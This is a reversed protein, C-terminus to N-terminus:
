PLLSEDGVLYLRRLRMVDPLRIRQSERSDLLGIAELRALARSLTEPKMGLRDAVVRKESHFRVEADAADAPALEVLYGALRQVSDKLRLDVLGRVLGHLQASAEALLMQAAEPNEGIEAVVDAAPLGIVQAQESEAVCTYAFDGGGVACTAGALHPAVVAGIWTSRGSADDILLDLRGHMVVFIREAPTGGRFVMEGQSFTMIDCCSLLRQLVPARFRGLVPHRQLTEHHEPVPDSVDSDGLRLTAAAPDAVIHCAAM